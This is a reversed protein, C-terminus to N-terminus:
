KKGGLVSKIGSVISGAAGAFIGGLDVHGLALADQLLQEAEAPDIKHDALAQRVHVALSAALKDDATFEAAAPSSSVLAAFKAHDGEEFDEATVVLLAGRPGPRSVSVVGQSGGVEVVGAIPIGAYKLNKM